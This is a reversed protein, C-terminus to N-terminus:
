SLIPMKLRFHNYLNTLNEWIWQNKGIKRPLLWNWGSAKLTSISVFRKEYATGLRKSAHTECAWLTDHVSLIHGMVVSVQKFNKLRIHFLQIGPSFVHEFWNLSLTLPYVSILKATRDETIDHKKKNSFTFWFKLYVKM